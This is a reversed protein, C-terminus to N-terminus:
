SSRIRRVPPPRGRASFFRGIDQALQTLQELLVGRAIRCAPAPEPGAFTESLDGALQLM